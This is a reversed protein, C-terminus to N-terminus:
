AAFQRNDLGVGPYGFRITLEEAPASGLSAILVALAVAIRLNM